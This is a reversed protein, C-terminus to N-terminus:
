MEENCFLSLKKFRALSVSSQALVTFYLELAQFSLTVEKLVKIFYSAHIYHILICFTWDLM